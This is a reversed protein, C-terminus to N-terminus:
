LFHPHGRVWCSTVKYSFPCPTSACQLYALGAKSTLPLAQLIGWSRRCGGAVPFALPLEERSDESPPQDARGMAQNEAEPSWFKGVVWDPTVRPFWHLGSKDSLISSNLSTVAQELECLQNNASGFAWGPVKEGERELGSRAREQMVGAMDLRRGQLTVPHHM